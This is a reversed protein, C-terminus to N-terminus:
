MTTYGERALADGARERSRVFEKEFDTWRRLRGPASSEAGEEKIGAAAARAGRRGRQLRGWV